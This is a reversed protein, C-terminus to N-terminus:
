PGVWAFIVAAFVLRLRPKGPVERTGESLPVLATRRGACVMSTHQM